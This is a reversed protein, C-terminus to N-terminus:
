VENLDVSYYSHILKDRMGAIAHWPIEISTAKFDVSIAKAAEGIIEIQRIVASCLPDDGIFDCKSKGATFKEIKDISDLIHQLLLDYRNM